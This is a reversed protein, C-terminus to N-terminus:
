DDGLTIDYAALAEPLRQEAVVGYSGDSFQILVPEARNLNYSTPGGHLWYNDANFYHQCLRYAGNLDFWQPEFTIASVPRPETPEFLHQRM